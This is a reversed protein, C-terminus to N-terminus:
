QNIAPGTQYWQIYEMDFEGAPLIPIINHKFCIGDERMDSNVKSLVRTIFEYVLSEYESGELMLFVQYVGSLLHGATVLTFKPEREHKKEEEFYEKLRVILRPTYRVEHYRGPHLELLVLAKSAPQLTFKLRGGELRITARDPVKRAEHTAKLYKRLTEAVRSLNRSLGLGVIEEGTLEGKEALVQLLRAYREPDGRGPVRLKRMAQTTQPLWREMELTRLTLGDDLGELGVDIGNGPYPDEPM